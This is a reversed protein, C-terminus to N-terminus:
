FSQNLFVLGYFEELKLYQDETTRKPAPAPEESEYDKDSESKADQPAEMKHLACSGLLLMMIPTMKNMIAEKYQTWRTCCIFIRM